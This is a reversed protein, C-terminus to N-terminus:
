NMLRAFNPSSSFGAASAATLAQDAARVLREREREEVSRQARGDENEGDRGRAGAVRQRVERDVDGHDPEELDTVRQLAQGRQDRM